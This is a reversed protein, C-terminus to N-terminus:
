VLFERALEDVPGREREIAHVAGSHFGPQHQRHIFEVVAPETGTDFAQFLQRLEGFVICPAVARALEILHGLKQLMEDGTKAAAFERNRGVVFSERIRFFQEQRLRDANM